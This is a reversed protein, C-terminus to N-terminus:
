LATRNTWAWDETQVSSIVNGYADSTIKTITWVADSELSGLPAYGNYSVLTDYDARRIYVTGGGQAQVGTDGEADYWNGNEGIYPSFGDEGQIGQEGQPGQAQVGTDGEADYWNGNEGIYPSFGDEGQIGQPGQAQIGTDGEADYWNGNEGIYPSFGDEGQPGQIGDVVVSLPNGSSGDGTLTADTHIMVDLEVLEYGTGTSNVRLYRDPILTSPMDILDTSSMNDVMEYLATIYNNTTECCNQICVWIQYITDNLESIIEIIDCWDFPCDGNGGSGVKLVQYYRDLLAQYEVTADIREILFANRVALRKVISGNSDILPKELEIYKTIKINIDDIAKSATPAHSSCLEELAYIGTNLVNFHHELENNCKSISDKLLKTYDLYAKKNKDYIESM